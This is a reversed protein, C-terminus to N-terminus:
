AVAQALSTRINQGAEVKGTFVTVRGDAAINIWAGIDKPLDHAGFGRGSEQAFAHRGSLCVLLGGGFLRLFDRRDLEFSQPSVLELTTM